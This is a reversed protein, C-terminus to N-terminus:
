INRIKIQRDIIEFQINGTIELMRLVQSLPVNRSITGNFHLEPIHDYSIEVDYWRELQKMVNQLDTDNFQFLGNKWAVAGETDVGELVQIAGQGAEAQQGPRLLTNQSGKSLRVLGELLTASVAKENEYAKINFHTGLVEVETPSDGWASPISVKFVKDGDRAVEFYVEGTIEVRRENGTFATPYRISSAANLWVKSGDPLILKYQGGKPTSLTNYVLDGQPDPSASRYELQGDALKLIDASGAEALVGNEAQDLVIASGDALTLIAKNGGPPRDDRAGAQTTALPLDPKNVSRTWIGAGAAGLILVAAAKRFWRRRY